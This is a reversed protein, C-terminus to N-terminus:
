LDPLEPPCLSCLRMGPFGGGRALCAAGVSCVSRTFNHHSLFVLLVFLFSKLSRPVMCVRSVKAMLGSGSCLSLAREKCSGNGLSHGESSHAIAKLVTRYQLLDGFYWVAQIREPIDVICILKNFNQLFGINEITKVGTNGVGLQSLKGKQLCKHSDWLVAPRCLAGPLGQSSFIILQGLNREEM